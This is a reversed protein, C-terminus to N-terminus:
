QTAVKGPAALNLVCTPEGARDTKKCSRGRWPRPSIQGEEMLMAFRCRVAGGQKARRDTGQWEVHAKYRLVM